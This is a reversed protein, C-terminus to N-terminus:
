TVRISDGVRLTGAAVIEARLGGRHRLASLLDQGSHKNLYSCPECLKIGKLTVDGVRFQKGVLHNLPVGITLLNRRTTAHTMQVEYDANAAQISEQEILTVQQSPRITGKQFAGKLNAYRDGVLGRGLTAEIQDLERMAEAANDSIQIALLEGVFESM